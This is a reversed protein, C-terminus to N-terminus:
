RGVIVGLMRGSRAGDRRFSFFREPECVTCRGLTDIVRVGGLSLQREVARWLDVHPRSAGRRVVVEEGCASALQAAVDDGVEFCCPGISPGIAAIVDERRGDDGSLGGLADLASSVVGAVGGRWGAHVAAVAGTRRDAMLVPLCDAVRVGVAAGRCGTVLADGEGTRVSEPGDGERVVWVGAGHVQSREFLREPAYGVARALRRHNEEVRDLADGTARGLNLSAFVGESVGGGRASFGHAFGESVMRSAREVAAEDSM